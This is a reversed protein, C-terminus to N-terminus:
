EEAIKPSIVIVDEGEIWPGLYPSICPNLGTIPLRNSVEYVYNGTNLDFGHTYRSNNIVVSNNPYINRFDLSASTETGMIKVMGNNEPQESFIVRALYPYGPCDGGLKLIKLVTGSDPHGFRTAAIGPEVGIEGERADFIVLYPKELSEERDNPIEFVLSIENGEELPLGSGVIKVPNLNIRKDDISDFYIEFDGSELIESNISQNELTVVLSSVDAWGVNTVELQGRFFHNILGTSYSVARGLLYPYATDFNFRNLSTLRKTVYTSLFTNTIELNRSRIEADFISLTSSRFNISTFGSKSDFIENQIFDILCPNVHCGLRQLLSRKYEYPINSEENLLDELPVSVVQSLPTPFSFDPHSVLQGNDNSQFNTGDSVFNQSTFDALGNNDKNDWYDRVSSFIPVEESYTSVLTSNELIKTDTYNEYYSPNHKGALFCFFAYSPFDILANCHQDNRVHQPQAMDQLHHIVHGLSRFMLGFNIRRDTEEQSTLGLYFYEMADRYSYFQNILDFDASLGQTELSELIWVPSPLGVWESFGAHQPNYFHHVSRTSADELVSGGTLIRLISTNELFISENPNSGIPDRPVFSPLYEAEVDIKLGINKLIDEKIVLNSREIATLTIQSHTQTDYAYDLSSYFFVYIILSCIPLIQM